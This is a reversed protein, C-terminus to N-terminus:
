FAGFHFIMCNRIVNGSFPDPKIFFWIDHDVVSLPKQGGFPRCFLGFLFILPFQICATLTLACPAVDQWLLSGCSTIFRPKDVL